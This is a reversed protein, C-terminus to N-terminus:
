SSDRMINVLTLYLFLTNSGIQQQRQEIKVKWFKGNKVADKGDVFYRLGRALSDRKGQYINLHAGKRLDRSKMGKYSPIAM